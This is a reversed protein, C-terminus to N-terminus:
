KKLDDLLIKNYKKVYAVGDIKDKNMFWQLLIGDHFAM